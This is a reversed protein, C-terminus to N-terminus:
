FKDYYPRKLVTPARKELDVEVQFEIYKIIGDVMGIRGASLASRGEKSYDTFKEMVEYFDEEKLPIRKGLKEAFIVFDEFWCDSSNPYIFTQEKLERCFDLM